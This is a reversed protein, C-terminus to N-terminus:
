FLVRLQADSVGRRLQGFARVVLDHMHIMNLLRLLHEAKKATM